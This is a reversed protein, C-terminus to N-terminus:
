RWWTPLHPNIRNMLKSEKFVGSSWGLFNPFLFLLYSSSLVLVIIGEEGWEIAILEHHWRKTANLLFKKESSSSKEGEDKTCLLQEITSSDSSIGSSDDNFGRYPLLSFVLWTLIIVARHTWLAPHTFSRWLRAAAGDYFVYYVATQTQKTEASYSHHIYYVDLSCVVIWWTLRRGGSLSSLM